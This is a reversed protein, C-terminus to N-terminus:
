RTFQDIGDDNANDGDDDDDDAAVSRFCYFDDRDVLV